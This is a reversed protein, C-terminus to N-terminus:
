RGILLIVWDIEVLNQILGLFHVRSICECDLALTLFSHFQIELGGRLKMANLGVVKCDTSSIFNDGSNM